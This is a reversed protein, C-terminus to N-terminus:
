IWDGRSLKGLSKDKLGSVERDGAAPSLRDATKKRQKAAEQVFQRGTHGEYVSIPPPVSGLTVVGGTLANVVRKKQQEPAFRLYLKANAAAIARGATAWSGESSALRCLGAALREAAILEKETDLSQDRDAKLKAIEGELRTQRRKQENFVVSIAAFQDQGDALALNRSVKELDATIRDLERLKRDLEGHGAGKAAAQQQALRQLQDTVKALMGPAVLAQRICGLVFQTALPGNVHNHACAGGHSQQYLGCKYRFSGNYPERYMPWGCNMDYVRCGLPNENPKRSKPVGRQSGGREQLKVLLRAHKDEDVLPDFQAPATIQDAAVHRIVKPKDDVRFDDDTLERPGAVSYRLQDGMSRRGYATVARLLPHQAINRITTAHWVGSVSHEIGNDTRKRGTDPSPIAEETLIRAVQTAPMEDLMKLIRQILQLEDEPGPLWVVHHGAMRVREGDVLQRIRAGDERVLWRRFGFPARGGTSYGNKALSLQAYLIKQALDRRFKGAADYDILAVLHDTVDTRQGRTKPGVTKDMFVLTVGGSRLRNEIQMADLPDDPRALRDRRPILIHSVNLDSQTEHILADLGPRSLLHGAVDYDLFIDGQASVGSRIMGAILDPSGDFSLRLEAAKVAAWAVYEAPTTEAKGGSDRTYFLARGQQNRKM